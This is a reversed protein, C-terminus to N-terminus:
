TRVKTKGVKSKDDFLNRIMLVQALGVSIMIFLQICSWVNVREFNNEVINRDRAEHMRMITQMQMTRDLNGRVIDVRDQM